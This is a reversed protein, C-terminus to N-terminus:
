RQERFTNQITRHLLLKEEEDVALMISKRHGVCTACVDERPKAIKINPLCNEWIDYFATHKHARVSQEECISM